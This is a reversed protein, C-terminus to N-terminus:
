ANAVEYPKQSNGINISVYWGVCFYDTQIDSKDYNGVNMAALVENLFKRSVGKFHKDIHYENVQYWFEGVSDKKFDLAGSKINLVLTSHDGVALTAKIGYNFCINKIAPALAKKKEQSMYAM